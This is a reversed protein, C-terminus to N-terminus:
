VKDKYKYNNEWDRGHIQVEPQGSKVTDEVTFKIKEALTKYLNKNLQRGRGKITKLQSLRGQRSSDNRENNKM